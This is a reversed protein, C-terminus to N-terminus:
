LAVSSFSVVIEQSYKKAKKKFSMSMFQVEIYLSLRVLIILLM